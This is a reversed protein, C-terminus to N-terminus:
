PRSVTVVYGGFERGRSSRVVLIFTGEFAATYTLSADLGFVGGGSNDDTEVDDGTARPFDVTLFPDILVSEVVVNVSEGKNLDLEFYDFDGRYDLSGAISQGVDIARGDDIDEYPILDRDSRLEFKGRGFENQGLIAFHPADIQTEVDSSRFLNFGNLDLLSIYGANQGEGSLDVDTGVPVNIVFM